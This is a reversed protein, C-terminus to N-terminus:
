QYEIEAKTDAKKEEKKETEYHEQPPASFPGDSDSETVAKTDAEKKEESELPKPM